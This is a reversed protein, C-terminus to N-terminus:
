FVSDFSVANATKIHLLQVRIESIRSLLDEKSEETALQAIGSLAKGIEAVDTNDLFYSLWKEYYVWEKELTKAQEKTKAFDGSQCQEELRYLMQSMDSVCRNLFHIQAFCLGLVVALLGMVLLLRKM